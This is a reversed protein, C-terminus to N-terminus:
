EVNERYLKRLQQRATKPAPGRPLLGQAEAAKALVVADTEGTSEALEKVFQLAPKYHDTRTSGARRGAATVGQDENWAEFFGAVKASFELAAKRKPDQEFLAERTIRQVDSETPTAFRDEEGARRRTVFRPPEKKAM